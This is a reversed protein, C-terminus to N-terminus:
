VWEVQLNQVILALEADFFLGSFLLFIYLVDYLQGREDSTFHNLHSSAPHTGIPMVEVTVEESM